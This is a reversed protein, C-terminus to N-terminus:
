QPTPSLCQYGQKAIQSLKVGVEAVTGTGPQRSGEGETPEMGRAMESSLPESSFPFSLCPFHCLRENMIKCVCVCVRGDTMCRCEAADIDGHIWSGSHKFIDVPAFAQLHGRARWMRSPLSQTQTYLQAATSTSHPLPCTCLRARTRGIVPFTIKYVAMKSVTTSM